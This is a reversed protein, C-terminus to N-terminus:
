ATVMSYNLNHTEIKLLHCSMTDLTGVVEHSELKKNYANTLPEAFPLQHQYFTLSKEPQQKVVESRTNAYRRFQDIWSLSLMHELAENTPHENIDM